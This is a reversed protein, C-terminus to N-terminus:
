SPDSTRPVFIYVLFVKTKVKDLVFVVLDSKEVCIKAFAVCLTSSHHSKTPQTVQTLEMHVNVFKKTGWKKQSALEGQVM